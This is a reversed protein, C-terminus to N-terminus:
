VIESKPRFDLPKQVGVLVSRIVSLIAEDRRVNDIIPVEYRDAEELIHEQIEVIEEFHKLYRTPERDPARKYRVKFRNRHAERDLTAVIEFVVHADAAYRSVEVIGPLLHGGELILSTNEEVARDLLAHIGVAVKQAQERFGIILANEATRLEPKLAQAAEYTSCHIEPMLAPSFMLRMMQRVLDTSHIRAIELRRAVEVALTSKGVGTSGGLLLFIPRGADRVEHWVWYREAALDGHKREIAETVLERLEARRIERRREQFLRIEIDRAVDYADDPELGAGQLSLSLIGKSFPQTNGEDDVVPLPELSSPASRADLTYRGGVFEDVLRALEERQVKGRDPLRKKIKKAAEFAVEFPVGRSVLSHVLIGRMFPRPGEPGIVVLSDAKV